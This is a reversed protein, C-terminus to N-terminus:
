DLVYKIFFIRFEKQKSFSLLYNFIINQTQILRIDVDHSLNKNYRVNSAKNINSSRNFSDTDYSGFGM